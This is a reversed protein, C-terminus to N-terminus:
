YKAMAQVRGAKCAGGIRQHIDDIRQQRVGMGVAEDLRQLCGAEVRKAWGTYLGQRHAFQASM